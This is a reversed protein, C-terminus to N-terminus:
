GFGGSDPIVSECFRPLCPIMKRVSETLYKKLISGSGIFRKDYELFDDPFRCLKLTTQKHRERRIQYANVATRLFFEYWEFKVSKM